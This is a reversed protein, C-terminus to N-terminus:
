KAIDKSSTHTSFPDTGIGSSKTREATRNRQRSSRAGRTREKGKREKGTHGFPKVYSLNSTTVTHWVSRKLWRDERATTPARKHPVCPHDRERWGVFEFCRFFPDITDFGGRNWGMGMRWGVFSLFSVQFMVFSSTSKGRKQLLAFSALWAVPGVVICGHSDVILVVDSARLVAAGVRSYSHAKWDQPREFGCRRPLDGQACSSSVFGLLM